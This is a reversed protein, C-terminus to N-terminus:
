QNNSKKLINRMYPECQLADFSDRIKIYIQIFM